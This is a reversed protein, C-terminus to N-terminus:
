CCFCVFKCKKLPDLNFILSLRRPPMEGSLGFIYMYLLLSAGKEPAPTSTQCFIRPRIAGCLGSIYMKFLLRARHQPNPTYILILRRPPMEVSLGFVCM